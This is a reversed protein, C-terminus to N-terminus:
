TFPSHKGVCIKTNQQFEVTKSWDNCARHQIPDATRAQLWIQIYSSTVWIQLIAGVGLFVLTCSWNFSCKIRIIKYRYIVIRSLKVDQLSFEHAPGLTAPTAVTETRNLLLSRPVLTLSRPFFLALLLAPLPHPLFSPFQKCVFGEIKFVAWKAQWAQTWAGVNSATM